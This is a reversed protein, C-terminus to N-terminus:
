EGHKRHQLGYGVLSTIGIGLLLLASTAPEPVSRPPPPSPRPSPRPRRLADQLSIDQAQSSTPWLMVMALIGMISMVNLLINRRKGQVPRREKWSRHHIREVQSRPGNMM